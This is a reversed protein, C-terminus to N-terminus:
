RNLMDKWGYVEWYIKNTHVFSYTHAEREKGFEDTEVSQLSGRTFKFEIPLGNLPRDVTCAYEGKRNRQMKYRSDHPEWNNFNGMIFVDDSMPTGKPVKLLIITVSEYDHVATDVWNLVEIYVTDATGFRFVRDSVQTGYRDAEFSYESGRNIKFRLDIDKRKIHLSYKGSKDLSFKFRNDAPMWRNINGALYIESGKPTAKPLKTLYLVTENTSRASLDFWNAVDIYLTDSSNTKWVRNPIKYGTFDVEQTSWDGRTVKFEIDYDRKPIQLVYQGKANLEFKAREDRPYWGNFNGAMFITSNAPTNEPVKNIVLTRMEHTTMRLDEWSLVDLQITDKEGFRFHRNAISVGTDDGELSFLNGRSIKFEHSDASREKFLTIMWKGNKKQRLTYKGGTADWNNFTGVVTISDGYPTNEPLSNLVITIKRCNLPEMDRWSAVRVAITDKSGYRIQRPVIEGGCDDGEVAALDGRTFRFELLGSGKPMKIYYFGDKSKEVQFNRDSAYWNNFNGSVFIKADAPTNAPLEDIRITLQHCSGLLLWLALLVCLNNPINLKFNRFM